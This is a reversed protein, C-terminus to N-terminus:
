FYRGNKGRFVDVASFTIASILVLPLIQSFTRIQLEEDNKILIQNLHWISIADFTNWIDFLVYFCWTVPWFKDGYSWVAFWLVLAFWVGRCIWAFALEFSVTLGQAIRQHAPLGTSQSM